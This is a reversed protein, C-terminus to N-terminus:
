ILDMNLLEPLDRIVFSAHACAKGCPEVAVSTPVIKFVEIDWESDGIYVTNELSIGNEGAIKKIVDKKEKLPVNVIGGPILEDNHFLLENYLCINVGLERCVRQVVIDVGSSVVAPVHGKSKIKNIVEEAGPRIKINSLAKEVEKKTIPKGHSHIMLAIDIKMWDLYSILGRAYLNAFYSNDKSGFYEHLVGWSSKEQTLVGDCDFVFLKRQM